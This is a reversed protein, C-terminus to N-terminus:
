QYQYMENPMMGGGMQQVGGMPNMNTNVYNNSLSKTEEIIQEHKEKLEDTIDTDYIVGQIYTAASHIDFQELAEQAMVFHENYKSQNGHLQTLQRHRMAACQAMASTIIEPDTAAAM